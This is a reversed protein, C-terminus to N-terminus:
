TRSPLRRVRTAVDRYAGETVSFRVRDGKRVGRERRRFASRHVFVDAGDFDRVLLGYGGEADFMRVTGEYESGRGLVPNLGVRGLTAVVAILLLLFVFPFRVRDVGARAATGMLVLSRTISPEDGGITGDPADDGQDMMLTTMDDHTATDTGAPVAIRLVVTAASTAGSPDSAAYAFTDKGTFGPNPTYTFGGDPSIELTGHDPGRLLSVTLVDGDGDTDNDLVGPAESTFTTDHEVRYSDRQADPAVNVEEVRITVTHTRSTAEPDSVVYDFRDTGWFGPAPRYLATTGSLTVSGNAPSDVLAISLSDGDPDFAYLSITVPTDEATTVEQDRGEPPRNTSTVFWLFRVEASAQPSGSDAVTVTIDHHADGGSDFDVTGSIVGKVPDISLGAPLGTAAYWLPPPGDPDMALIRLEVTDGEANTQNAPQKVQPPNNVEDVIIVVESTASREPNGDDTVTVAFSYTGPGQEEGPIWRFRGTSTIFAGDPAGQLSYALGNLPIDPDQAEVDFMLLSGEAIRHGAIPELVPSENVEAVVVEVLTADMRTPSGDDAVVVYFAYSAPGQAESPTWSFYGDPTIDAGAPVAGALGFELVNVPVDIDTATARFTLESGEAVLFSGLPALTPSSNTEKVAVTVRETDSLPPTGQDSVLVDFTFVSGGDAETATWRFEGDPGITAGPLVQGSLTFVPTNAPWDPDFVEATFVLEAGELVVQPGIPDLAPARNVEKVTVSISERDNISPDEILAVIVDFVHTGPGDKETTPWWFIGDPTISAGPPADPGLSFEHAGSGDISTATAVFGLTKGESVKQNGIPDLVIGRPEVSLAFEVDDIHVVGSQGVTNSLQFRIDMPQGAWGSVDISDLVPGNDPTGLSYSRLQTWTPAGPTKALLRVTGSSDPDGDVHRMFRLVASGAPTLDVRRTIGADTDGGGLTLCSGSCGSGGVTVSGNDPGDSEGNGLWTTTWVLSGHSGAYGDDFRDLYSGYPVVAAGAGAITVLDVGFMLALLVVIVRHRARAGRRAKM